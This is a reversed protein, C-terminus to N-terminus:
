EAGIASSEVKIAYVKKDPRAASVVLRSGDPSLRLGSLRPLELLARVTFSGDADMVYDRAARNSRHLSQRDANSEHRRLLLATTDKLLLTESDTHPLGCVPYGIASTRM